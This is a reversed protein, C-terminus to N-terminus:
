VEVRGLWLLGTAQGTAAEVLRVACGYLGPGVPVVVTLGGAVFRAYGRLRAKKASLGDGRSRLRQLYLATAVGASNARDSRFEVGGAAAAATVAVHDGLFRSSPPLRPPWQGPNLRMFHLALSLYATNARARRAGPGDPGPQRAWERWADVEALSLNRYLAVAADFNARQETQAPTRPNAVRPRERVFTRGDATQYYVANGVRGKIPPFLGGPVVEAM